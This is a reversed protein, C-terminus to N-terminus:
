NVYLEWIYSMKSLICVFCKELVVDLETVESAWMIEHSPMKFLFSARTCCTTQFSFMCHQM